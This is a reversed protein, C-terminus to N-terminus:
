SDQESTILSHEGTASLTNAMDSAIRVWPVEQIGLEYKDTERVAV